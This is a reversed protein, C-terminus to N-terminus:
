LYSCFPYPAIIKEDDKFNNVECAFTDLDLKQLTELNLKTMGYITAMTGKKPSLLPIVKTNINNCENLSTIILSLTAPTDEKRIIEAWDRAIKPSNYNKTWQELAVKVQNYRQVEDAELYNDICIFTGDNKLAQAIKLYVTKLNEIDRIHHLAYSSVILDYDNDPFDDTIFNKVMYNINSIPIQKTEFFAQASDLMEKSFDLMTVKANPFETLILETLMGNGAGVDLIKLKELNNPFLNHIIKKFEEFLVEADFNILWADQRYTEAEKAYRNKIDDSSDMM